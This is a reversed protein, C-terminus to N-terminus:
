ALDITFRVDLGDTDALTEARVRVEVGFQRASGSILGEALKTFAVVDRPSFDAGGQQLMSALAREPTM